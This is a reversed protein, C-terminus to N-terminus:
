INNLNIVRARVKKLQSARDFAMVAAVALDIKRASGKFDKVIRSGRSDTKLVCNGVHRTLDPDGSHSMAKNVAAEHFRATAPIMREPRQPYEVMPIREGALVQMSRSWRYPDCVVERVRWRKACERIADEVDEIPVSWDEPAREPRVWLGAVDIFPIEGTQAVVLATTDNNFSGDFGLVVEARDPITRATDALAEWVDFPIWEASASTVQNLYFRRSITEPTVPDLIEALVRNVDVWSSDGRAAVLGARIADENGSFEEIPPAETSDYYVGELKGNAAKWAEYTQEAASGEGPLHANTIEMVRAAGDRSKGLNRRIAQSMELGDNNSLWHHTENAIVLTPRGGELARPSSTVAEIRGTGRAYIIEKGMDVSYEAITDKSFLGPFLTMTNRTQDRSVAAVQIWPAPHQIALPLGNKQWGGFRCPGCLEVAALSALFPDKGWGKMRRLVGRRHRFAGKADIEYWRLVIRTQEPTYEWPTGALPGDPQLLHDATWLL